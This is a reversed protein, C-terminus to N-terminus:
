STSTSPSRDRYYVAGMHQHSLSEDLALKSACVFVQRRVIVEGRTAEALMDYPRRWRQNKTRERSLEGEDVWEQTVSPSIEGPYRDYQFNRLGGDGKSWETKSFLKHRTRGGYICKPRIREMDFLFNQHEMAGLKSRAKPHGRVSRRGHVLGQMLVSDKSNAIGRVKTRTTGRTYLPQDNRQIGFRSAREESRSRERCRLTRKGWVTACAPIPTARFLPLLALALALGPSSALAANVPRYLATAASVATTLLVQVAVIGYFKRIFGQRLDNEGLSLGPYLTGAEIVGGGSRVRVNDEISERGRRWDDLLSHHVPRPPAACRLSSRM